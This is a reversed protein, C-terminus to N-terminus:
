ARQAHPPLGCQGGAARGKSLTLARRAQRPTFPGGQVLSVGRLLRADKAQIGVAGDAAAHQLRDDILGARAAADAVDLLVGMNKIDDDLRILQTPLKRHLFAKLGAL